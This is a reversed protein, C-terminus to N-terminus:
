APRELSMAYTQGHDASKNGADIGAAGLVFMIEERPAEAYWREIQQWQVLGQAVDTVKDRLGFGDETAIWSAIYGHVLGNLYGLSFASKDPSRRTVAVGLMPGLDPKANEAVLWKMVDLLALSAERHRFFQQMEAPVAPGSGCPYATM